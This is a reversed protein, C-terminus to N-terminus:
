VPSLGMVESNLTRHARGSHWLAAWSFPLQFELEMKKAGLSMEKWKREECSRIKSKFYDFHNIGDNGKGRGEGQPWYLLCSKRIIKGSILQYTSHKDKQSFAILEKMSELINFLKKKSFFVHILNDRILIKGGKM